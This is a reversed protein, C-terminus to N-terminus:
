AETVQDETLLQSKRIWQSWSHQQYPPPPRLVVTAWGPIEQIVECPAIYGGHFEAYMM